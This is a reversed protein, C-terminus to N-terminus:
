HPVIRDDVQRPRPPDDDLPIPAGRNEWAERLEDVFARFEDEPYLDMPIMYAVVSAIYVFTYTGDTVIKQIARLDLDTNVLETNVILRGNALEMDRWGFLIRTSGEALFKRTNRALAWNLYWRIFFVWGLSLALFTSGLCFAFATFAIDDDARAESMVLIFMAFLVALVAPLVLTHTWVQRRWTPSHTYHFRNFAIVDEITSKFRIKV